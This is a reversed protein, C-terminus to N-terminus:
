HSENDSFHSLSVFQSKDLSIDWNMKNEYGRRITVVRNKLTSPGILCAIDSLDDECLRWRTSLVATKTPDEMEAEHRRRRPYEMLVKFQQEAEEVPNLRRLAQLLATKGAENKGALCTLDHVSFEDSDDICKYNQVRLSVLKM